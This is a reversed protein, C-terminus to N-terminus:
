QSRSPFVRIRDATDPPDLHPCSVPQDLLLVWLDLQSLFPLFCVQRRTHQLTAKRSLAMVTFVQDSSINYPTRFTTACPSARSYFHLPFQRISHTALVRVRGRFTTYGVNSVSIRVVRRGATSQVSEGV